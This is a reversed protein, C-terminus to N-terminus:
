DTLSREHDLEATHIKTKSSFFFAIACILINM